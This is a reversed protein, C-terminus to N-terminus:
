GLYISDCEQITNIIWKLIIRVHVDVAEFHYRGKLNESWFKKRM